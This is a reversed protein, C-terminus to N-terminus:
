INHKTESQDINKFINKLPFYKAGMLCEPLSSQSTHNLPSLALRCVLLDSTQNGTLACAQTASWTGLLPHLLPLWVNINREREKERGEGRDLFLYIFDKLFFLFFIVPM